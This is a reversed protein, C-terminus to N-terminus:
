GKDNFSLKMYQVREFADSTKTNRQNLMGRFATSTDFEKREMWEELGSQIERIRNIGNKLITSCLQVTKAGVLLQKLVDETEHIGTTASLDIELESSLIGIWRLSRVAEERASLVTGSKLTLREVDVDPHLFRNFLVLANVGTRSFKALTKYLNTFYYGTKLAIPLGTEKRVAKIIDLYRQELDSGKTRPDYPPLFINLELGDAGAKEVDRAFRTWELPSVCHVSAIVPIEIAAKAGKILDLYNAVAYEQTYNQIYDVAEPLYLSDENKNMEHAVEAAIQEEFLSKLVIAGAGAEACKKITDISKTVNSSAVVLPSPLTLGMYETETNPHRQTM